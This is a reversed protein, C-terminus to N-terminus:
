KDPTNDDIRLLDLGVIKDGDFDEETIEGTVKDEFRSKEFTEKTMPFVLNEYTNELKVTSSLDLTLTKITEVPYTYDQGFLPPCWLTLVSANNQYFHFDNKNFPIVLQYIINLSFIAFVHTFLREASNKKKFIM